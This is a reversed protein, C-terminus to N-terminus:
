DGIHGKAPLISFINWLYSSVHNEFILFGLGPCLCISNVPLHFSWTSCFVAICFPGSPLLLVSLFMHTSVCKISSSLTHSFQGSVSPFGHMHFCWCCFCIVQLQEPFSVINNHPEAIFLTQKTMFISFVPYLIFLFVGAIDKNPTFPFLTNPFSLLM